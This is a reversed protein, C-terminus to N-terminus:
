LASIEVLEVAGQGCVVLRRGRRTVLRGPEVAETFGPVDRVKWIRRTEGEIPGFAGPYPKTQARVWNYVKRSSWRWDILGDSPERKGFYSKRSLDQPLRKIRGQGIQAFIRRLIVPYRRAMKKLLFGGTDDNGIAIKEQYLIDGADVDPAMEHVTIGTEIEDNIIVWTAPARGMYKPLLSGHINFALVGAKKLIAEPLVFLYNVSALVDCTGDFAAAKRRPNGITVPLAQKAALGLIGTSGQDTLVRKIRVQPLRLAARLATEGLGGSCCFIVSLKRM